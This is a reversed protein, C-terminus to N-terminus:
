IIFSFIMCDNCPVSLLEDINIILICRSDIWSISALILSSSAFISSISWFRWASSNIISSQCEQRQTLRTSAIDDWLDPIYGEKFRSILECWPRSKGWTGMRRASLDYVSPNAFGSVSVQPPDQNLNGVGGHFCQSWHESPEVPTHHPASSRRNSDHCQCPLNKRDDVM